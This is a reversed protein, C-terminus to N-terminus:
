LSPNLRKLETDYAAWGDAHGEDWDHSNHTNVSKREPMVVAVPATQEAYLPIEDTFGLRRRVALAESGEELYAKGGFRDNVLYCVPEGQPQAADLQGLVSKYAKRLTELEASLKARDAALKANDSKLAEVKGLAEDREQRMGDRGSQWAEIGEMASNAPADLLARLELARNSPGPGAHRELENIANQITSRPVGDITQNTTM